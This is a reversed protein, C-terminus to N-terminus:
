TIKIAGAQVTVLTMAECYLVHISICIFIKICKCAKKIKISSMKKHAAKHLNMDSTQKLELSYSQLIHFLEFPTLPHIGYLTLEHLKNYHLCSLEMSTYSHM